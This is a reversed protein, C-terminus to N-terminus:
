GRVAPADKAQRVSGWPRPRKHKKRTRDTGRSEQAGRCAVPKSERCGTDSSEPAGAKPELGAIVGAQLKSGTLREIQNLKSRDGPVVLSIATGRARARGTRGIRHIYDEAVAPLDFNIVHSISRIDLGRAAVDTAVLVRVQGLRMREVTRQRAAQSMDGHLAAASHGAVGLSKAMRKAGRKTATFVLAQTLDDRTLHHALLKRKHSTDDAQYLCQTIGAHREHNSTLQLREPKKTLAKAVDLVAGELTASFLLTQRNAPLAAAIQKVPRIFGMDLMRDAEDLILTELRSFNVNGQSMHDLLRGPTAVLLDLPKGLLRHQPGYSVGGVLSGATFSCPHGFRAVVDSVQVALERTPTLVLARPGVGKRGAPELLKQLVPLVFAATKGTGTQACAMLDKGALIIPIARSQIETPQRFGGDKVARLLRSDLGLEEFTM